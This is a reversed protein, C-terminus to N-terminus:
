GSSRGSAFGLRDVRHEDLEGVGRDVEGLGFDCPTSPRRGVVRSAGTTLSNLRIMWSATLRRADAVDVDLREGVADADAVPDVADQDLAVAAGRRSSAGSSERRLIMPDISM